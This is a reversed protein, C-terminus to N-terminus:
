WPVGLLLTHSRAVPALVGHMHMEKAKKGQVRSSSGAKDAENGVLCHSASGLVFV